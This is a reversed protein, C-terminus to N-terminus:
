FYAILRGCVIVGLWLAISLGGALRAARPPPQELDWGTISRWPGLHFLAANLGGLGILSLKTLFAPNRAVAVAETVFLLAGTPVAMVFGAISIPLLHRALGRAALFRHGGLLRIDLALIAGVLMVFALIHLIEVAPYLLLSQRMAQGVAGEQLWVLWAPSAGVMHEM